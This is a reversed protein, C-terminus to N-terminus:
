GRIKELYEILEDLRGRVLRVEYWHMSYNIEVLDVKKMTNIHNMIATPSLNLLRVLDINRLYVHDNLLDLMRKRAPHSIADCLMAISIEEEVYNNAKIAGM